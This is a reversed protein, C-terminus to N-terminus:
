EWRDNEWDYQEYPHFRNKYNMSQNEEIFYGLYYYSLGLSATHEIEKLISFTGPSLFEYDTNFIFYVSSFAENSQDLFGTAFLKNELYFESQIAPCSSTFFSNMFDDTNTEQNFRKLSHDRYLEYIEDRYELAGYQIKINGGKKLVRKQSKSASFDKVRVRLPICKRCGECNPKFFYTGFKRWGRKLLENLETDALGFAVNDFINMSDFLAAGQFLIGFKSEIGIRTMEDAGTYRIDDVFISGKDPEIIGVLHKMIVSKGSGSKGIICLIEHELVDLSIGDLINKPGFSKHLGEIKIKVKM